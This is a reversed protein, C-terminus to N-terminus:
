LVDEQPRHHPSYNNIHQRYEIGQPCGERWAHNMVESLAGSQSHDGGAGQGREDDHFQDLDGM